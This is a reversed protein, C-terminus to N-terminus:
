AVISSHNFEIWDEMECSRDLFRGIHMVVVVELSPGM